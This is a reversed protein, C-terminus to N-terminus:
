KVPNSIRKWNSCEDVDVRHDYFSQSDKNRLWVDGLRSAGSCIYTHGNWDCLVTYLSLWQNTGDIHKDYAPRLFRDLWTKADAEANNLPPEELWDYVHKM